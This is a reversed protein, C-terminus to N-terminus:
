RVVCVASGGVVGIERGSHSFEGAPPFRQPWGGVPYQSDLVFQIAKDLAPCFKPDRKEVYMRLLDLDRIATVHHFGALRM